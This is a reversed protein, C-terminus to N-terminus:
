RGRPQKNLLTDVTVVGVVFLDVFTGRYHVKTLPIWRDSISERLLPSTIRFANRHRLPMM